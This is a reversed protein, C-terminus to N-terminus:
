AVGGLALTCREDRTVNGIKTPYDSPKLELVARRKATLIRKLDFLPDIGTYEASGESVVAIISMHLDHLTVDM